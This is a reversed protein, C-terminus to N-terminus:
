FVGRDGYNRVMKEHFSTITELTEIIIGCEECKRRRLVGEFENRTERVAGRIYRGCNPCKFHKTYKSNM